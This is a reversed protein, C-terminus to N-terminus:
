VKSKNGTMAAAEAFAMLTSAQESLSLLTDGNFNCQCNAATYNRLLRGGRVLPLPYETTPLSLPGDM